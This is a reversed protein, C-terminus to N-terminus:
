EIDPAGALTAIFLEVPSKDIAPATGTPTYLKVIDAMFVTPVVSIANVKVTVAAGTAGVIVLTLLVLTVLPVPPVNLTVLVPEIGNVYEKDPAPRGAFTVISLVFPLIVIGPVTGTPEYVNMIVTLLPVAGLEVCTNVNVTVAACTAGTILLVFLVLTTLPVPPDNWTVDEPVNGITYENVPAGVPTLIFLAFPKIIISPDTGAPDYVNVILAVFPVKGFAACLKENVTVGAGKAGVIVLVALVLTILPVPPVNGTVAVPVSGMANENVPAGVPTVIFLEVPTIVIAPETAAPVYVNVTVAPLETPEIL